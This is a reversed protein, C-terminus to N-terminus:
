IASKSGKLTSIAPEFGAPTVVSKGPIEPGERSLACLPFGPFARLLESIVGAAAIRAAVLDLSRRRHRRRDCHGVLNM